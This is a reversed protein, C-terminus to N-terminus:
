EGGIPQPASLIACSDISLAGVNVSSIPSRASSTALCPVAAGPVSCDGLSRSPRAVVDASRAAVMAEVWYGQAHCRSPMSASPHLPLPLPCLLSGALRPLAQERVIPQSM